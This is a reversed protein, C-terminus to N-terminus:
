FQLTANFLLGGRHDVGAEVLTNGKFLRVLPTLTWTNEMKPRHDVQMMFWTHLSGYNAIYPAIGVRAKQEFSQEIQGAYLLKNEYQTFYRRDEWDASIGVFASPETKRSFDGFDSYAVGAGSLFYLNAQSAPENWRQILHNFIGGNWYWEKDRSYATRYGIAHRPTLTYVVEAANSEADNMTMLMWGEPWSIPRAEANQWFFAGGCLLLITLFIKRM